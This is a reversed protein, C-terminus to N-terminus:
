ASMETLVDWMIHAVAAQIGPVKSERSGAVNLTKLGYVDIFDVIQEVAMSPDPFELDVHLHPKTLEECLSFTLKSGGTPKGVTFILTGDSEQINLRTRRPYEWEATEQLQYKSPIPGDESRRGAPCWGDHPVGAKIAADLGGQDAGTQGGSVIREIVQQKAESDRRTLASHASTRATSARVFPYAM